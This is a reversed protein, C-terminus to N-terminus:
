LSFRASRAPSSIRQRLLDWERLTCNEPLRGNWSCLRIKHALSIVYREPHPQFPYQITYGKTLRQISDYRPMFGQTGAEDHGIPFRLLPNSRDFSTVKM